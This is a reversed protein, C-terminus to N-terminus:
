TVYARGGNSSQQSGNPSDQKNSNVEFLNSLIGTIKHLAESNKSETKEVKELKDLAHDMTGSFSAIVEISDPHTRDGVKIVIGHSQEFDDIVMYPLREGASYPFHGSKPRIKELVPGLLKFDSVLGSNVFAECFLQKAKGLNGPRRVNLGVLGTEFWVARGLKCKWIWFRNKAKSCVWGFGLGNKDWDAEVLRRLAVSLELDLRGKAKFCHFNSCKSGRENQYYYKWEWKTKSVYNHYQKYTLNLLKCIQKPTLLPNSQGEGDLLGFIQTRLNNSNSSKCYSDSIGATNTSPKAL